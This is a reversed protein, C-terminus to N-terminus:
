LFVLGDVASLADVLRGNLDEDLFVNLARLGAVHGLENVPEDLRCFRVNPVDALGFSLTIVPHSDLRDLCIRVDRGGWRAAADSEAISYPLYEPLLRALEASGVTRPWCGDSIDIAPVPIPRSIGSRGSELVYLDHVPNFQWPRRGARRVCIAAAGDHVAYAVISGPGASWTSPSAGRVLEVRASWRVGDLRSSFRWGEVSQERDGQPARFLRPYTFVVSDLLRSSGAVPEAVVSGDPGVSASVVPGDPLDQILLRGPEAAIRRNPWPSSSSPAVQRAWSAVCRVEGRPSVVVAVPQVKDIAM